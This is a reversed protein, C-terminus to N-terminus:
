QGCHQLGSPVGYKRFPQGNEMIMDFVEIGAVYTSHCFYAAVGRHVNPM